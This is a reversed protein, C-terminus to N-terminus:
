AEVTEEFPDTNQLFKYFEASGTPTKCAKHVNKMDGELVKFIQETKNWNASTVVRGGFILHKVILRCQNLSYLVIPKESPRGKGTWRGTMRYIWDRLKINEHLWKTKKLCDLAKALYQDNATMSFHPPFSRSEESETTYSPIQKTRSRGKVNQEMALKDVQTLLKEGDDFGQLIHAKLIRFRLKQMSEEDTVDYNEPILEEIEKTHTYKADKM